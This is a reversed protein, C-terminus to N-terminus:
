RFVEGIFPFGSTQNSFVQWDDVSTNTSPSRSRLGFLNGTAVVCNHGKCEQMYRVVKPRSVKKCGIGQQRVAPSRQRVSYLFYVIPLVTAVHTLQWHYDPIISTVDLEFDSLAM